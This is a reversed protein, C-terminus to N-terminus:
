KESIETEFMDFNQPMCLITPAIMRGKVLEGSAPEFADVETRSDPLRLFIVYDLHDGDTIIWRGKIKSDEVMMSSLRYDNLQHMVWGLNHYETFKPFLYLPAFVVSKRQAEALLLMKKLSAELHYWDYPDSKRAEHKQKDTMRAM